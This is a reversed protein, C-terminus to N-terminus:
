RFPTETGLIRSIEGMCIPSSMALLSKVLSTLSHLLQRRQIRGGGSFIATGEKIRGGDGSRAAILQVHIRLSM